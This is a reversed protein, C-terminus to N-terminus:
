VENGTPYEPNDNLPLPPISSNDTIQYAFSRPNLPDSTAGTIPYVPVTGTPEVQAIVPHYKQFLVEISDCASADIKWLGAHPAVFRYHEM